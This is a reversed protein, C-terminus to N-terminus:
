LKRSRFAEASLATGAWAGDIARFQGALGKLMRYRHDHGDILGTQGESPCVM